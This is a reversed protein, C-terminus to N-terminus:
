IINYNLFFYVQLGMRLASVPNLSILCMKTIDLRDNPMLFALVLMVLCTLIIITM